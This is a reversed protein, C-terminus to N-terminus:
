RTQGDLQTAIVISYEMLLGQMAEIKLLYVIGSSKSDEDSNGTFNETIKLNKDNM